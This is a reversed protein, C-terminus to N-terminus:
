YRSRGFRSKWKGEKELKNLADLFRDIQYNTKGLSDKLEDYEKKTILNDEFCDDIDGELEGLSGISVKISQAFQGASDKRYGERINQKASRAADRMQGVLRSHTKFFKETIKFINRRILSINQYFKLNEYAHRQM